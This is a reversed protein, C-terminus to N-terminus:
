GFTLFIKWGRVTCFFFFAWSLWFSNNCKRWSHTPFSWLIGEPVSRVGHRNIEGRKKLALLPYAQVELAWKQHQRIKYLKTRKDDRETKAVRKLKGCVSHYHKPRGSNTKCFVDRYWSPTLGLPLHRIKYSLSPFVSANANHFNTCNKKFHWCYRM